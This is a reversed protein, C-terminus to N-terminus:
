KGTFDYLCLVVKGYFILQNAEIAQEYPLLTSINQVNKTIKAYVGEQIRVKGLFSMDQSAEAVNWANGPIQKSILNESLRIEDTDFRDVALQRLRGLKEMQKQNEEQRWDLIFQPLQWDGIRNM